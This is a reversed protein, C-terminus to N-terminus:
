LLPFALALAPRGVRRLPQLAASLFRRCDDAAGESANALAHLDGNMLGAILEAHELQQCAVVDIDDDVVWYGDMTCHTSYTRVSNM